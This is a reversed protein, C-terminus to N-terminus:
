RTVHTHKGYESTIGLASVLTVGPPTIGAVRSSCQGITIDRIADSLLLSPVGSFKPGVFGVM